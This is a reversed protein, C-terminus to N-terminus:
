LEIVRTRRAEALREVAEDYAAELLAPYDAVNIFDPSSASRQTIAYLVRVFTNDDQGLSIRRPNDLCAGIYRAIGRAMGITDIKVPIALGPHVVALGYAGPKGYRKVDYAFDNWNEAAMNLILRNLPPEYIEILRLTHPKKTTSYKAM